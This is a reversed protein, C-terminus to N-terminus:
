PTSAAEGQRRSQSQQPTCLGVPWRREAQGAGVVLVLEGSEADFWAYSGNPAIMLLQVMLRAIDSSLVLTEKRRSTM